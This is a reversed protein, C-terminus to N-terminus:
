LVEEVDLQYLTHLSLVARAADCAPILVSLKIDSASVAHVEIEKQRLTQFLRHAPSLVTQLGSGIVSIKAVGSDILLDKFHFTNQAKELIDRVREVETALITFSCDM